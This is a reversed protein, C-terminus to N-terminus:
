RRGGFHGPAGFGGPGGFGGMRPAREGSDLKTKQDPTLIARFRAQAKGQIAAMQGHLTGLQTAAREIDADLGTTKVADRLAKSAEGIQPRLTSM